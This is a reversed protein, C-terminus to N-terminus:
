NIKKTLKKIARLSVPRNQVSELETSHYLQTCNLHLQVTVSFIHLYKYATPIIHASTCIKTTASLSKGSNLDYGDYYPLTLNRTHDSIGKILGLKYYHSLSVGNGYYWGYILASFKIDNQLVLITSYHNCNNEIQM